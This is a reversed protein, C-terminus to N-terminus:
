LNVLINIFLVLDYRMQETNKSVGHTFMACFYDSCAALVIRHAPFDQEEVRLTVDCLTNVKRLNNMTTLISKAHSDTFIQRDVLCGTAMKSLRFFFTCLLITFSICLQCGQDRFPARVIVFVKPILLAM